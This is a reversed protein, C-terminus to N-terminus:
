PQVTVSLLMEPHLACEIRFSLAKTLTLPVQDGALHTYSNSVPRNMANRLDVAYDATPSFVYHADKDKNVFLLTDGIKASIQQPQFQHDLMEITIVRAARTASGAVAGLAMALLLVVCVRM